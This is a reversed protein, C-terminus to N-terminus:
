KVRKFVINDLETIEKKCIGDEIIDGCPLEIKAKGKYKIGSTLEIVISFSVEAELDEKTINSERLLTGDIRIETNNSSHEALNENACRIGIIGGNNGIKLTELNSQIDGIYEVSNEIVNEENNNYINQINDSAKYIKIEGKKPKKEVNINELSVKKIFVNEQNSENKKINIYIDNNQVLDLNWYETSGEKHKAAVTSVLSIKNLKFPMNKEGEVEYRLILILSVLFVITVLSIAVVKKLMNKKDDSQM